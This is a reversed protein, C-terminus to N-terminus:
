TDEDVLDDMETEGWREQQRRARRGDNAWAGGGARREGRGGGFSGGGRRAPPRSLPDRWRQFMQWLIHRPLPPLPTCTIDSVIVHLQEVASVGRAHGGRERVLVRM